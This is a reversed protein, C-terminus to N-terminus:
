AVLPSAVPRSAEVALIVDLFVSTIADIHFGARTVAALTDRNMSTGGNRTWWTMVDLTCALLPQCSRVHEFLLLTGGPALVRHIEHLAVDPRAISCLSCSTIVTDFSAADFPLTMADAAVLLVHAPTRDTRRCARALMTPSFDIAVVRIAPLHKFDLGTGAAILLTRGRARGFLAAKAGRRRLDSGELVDYLTSRVCWSDRM